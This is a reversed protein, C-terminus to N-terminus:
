STPSAATSSPATTSRRPPRRRARHGPRDVGERRHRPRRLEGRDEARGQPLAEGRHQGRHDRLARVPGEGGRVAETMGMTDDEDPLRHKSAPAETAQGLDRHSKLVVVDNPRNRGDAAPDAGELDERRRRLGSVVEGFITHKGNLYDPKSVTIFFQSGNTNPGRNAMALLGVKDFAAARSSTTSPTARARRPRHRDPRRGSDHLGAIVRHFITGDYLGHPARQGTRPDTWHKEGTALGM